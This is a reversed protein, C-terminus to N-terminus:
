RRRRAKAAARRSAAPAAGPLQGVAAALINSPIGDRFVQVTAPGTVAPVQFAVAAPSISYVLAPIGNVTVEVGDLNPPPNSPDAAATVGALQAGQVRAWTGPVLPGVAYTAGGDPSPMVSFLEPGLQYASRGYTFVVTMGTAPNIKIDYIAAIPVGVDPGQAVWTVGGDTSRWLGLDSGAYVINTNVPDVAIVDFPQNLAPGVNKWSPLAAMANTTKFVHGPTGPTVDDFSSIAAYVVNPNSPDFALWNVPRAPLTQGPDLDTWTQGGNKTLRVNGAFDAYAYTNCSTDSTVFAIAQITGPSGSQNPYSSAPGNATWTPSSASFFHDTRWMRNTGTLFVDDNTPCKRVPAVFASAAVDIGQGAGVWTQGGDLSRGVVGWIWAAM